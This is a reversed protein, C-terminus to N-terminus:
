LTLKFNKGLNPNLWILSNKKPIKAFDSLDCKKLFTPQASDVGIKECAGFNVWFGGFMAKKLNRNLRSLKKKAMFDFQAPEVWKTQVFFFQAIKEMVRVFHWDLGPTLRRTWNARSDPQAKASGALARVSTLRAARVNTPDFIFPPRLKHATYM